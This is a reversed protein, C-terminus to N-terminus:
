KGPFEPYNLNRQPSKRAPSAKPNGPKRGINRYFGVIQNPLEEIVAAALEEPQDKYKNFPVFQVIDRQAVKKSGRLLEDDSDLQEMLSFDASGVGIIIISLPLYSGEVVWDITESMDHICGDTLILMVNYNDPDSAYSSRAQEIVEKLMPAFYTPGDLSIFNMCHTYLQFVGEVTYGAPKSFDGSLPFFHSTGRPLFPYNLNAGFGYTPIQTM